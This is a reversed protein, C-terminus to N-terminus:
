VSLYALANFDINRDLAYMFGIMPQNRNSYTANVFSKPFGVFADGNKGDMIQKRSIQSM